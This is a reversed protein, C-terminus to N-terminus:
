IIRALSITIMKLYEMGLIINLTNFSRTFMKHFNQLQELSRGECGKFFHIQNQYSKHLKSMSVTKIQMYAFRYERNTEVQYSSSNNSPFSLYLRKRQHIATSTYSRPEPDFRATGSISTRRLKIAVHM